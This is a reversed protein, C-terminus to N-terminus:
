VTQVIVAVLTDAILGVFFEPDILVLGASDVAVLPLRRFGAALTVGKARITQDRHVLM